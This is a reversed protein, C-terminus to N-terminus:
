LCRDKRELLVLFLSQDRVLGGFNEPMAKSHGRVM